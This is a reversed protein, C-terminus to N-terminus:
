PAAPTELFELMPTAAADGAGVPELGWLHEVTRLLSYHNFPTSSQFGQKVGSGALITVVRNSSEGEDYTVVLLSRGSTFGPSTMLAPVERSLWTDTTSLPCDHGDDCLNPTLFAFNPATSPSSFDAALSSYPVIEACRAPDTRIGNFYIFPDHKQAYLGASGGYCPAPMGEMYAKWTKGAADLRDPLSPASVYCATCDSSVGFTGGGILALYNPLSPHSVGSYDTALSWQRALSNLYPAQSSGIVSEYSHNELVIVVVHRYGEPAPAPAATALGPRASAAPLPVLSAASPHAPSRAVLRSLGVLGATVALALVIAVAFRVPTRSLL